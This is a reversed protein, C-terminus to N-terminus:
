SYGKICLELGVILTSLSEGPKHQSLRSALVVDGELVAALVCGMLTKVRLAYPLQSKQQDRRANLVEQRQLLGPIDREIERLISTSETRRGPDEVMNTARTSHAM